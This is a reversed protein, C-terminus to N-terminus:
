GTLATLTVGRRAAAVAKEILAWPDQRRRRCTEVVSLIAAYARSGEDTRTGYSIRRAIVAHRLATEADNNTPPLNPNHVFATIADWDSLVERALARAKEGDADQNLLCARKLRALIPNVSRSASTDPARNEAVTHILARMERVLWEGFRSPEYQYGDILAIGKRILHAVCRQRRPYSRYAGYGDSVLWGLFADGILDRITEAHRSSIRYIATTTNLAVWLWRLKHGQQPWPTEDAHIVGAARLDDILSDVIPECALGAERICRDISGVSLRLDLWSSLFEAIKARSMRYRVSLAAIFTTLGPGVLGAESPRLQDKRGELVRVAGTLPRAATKAGCSCTVAFYCHKVCGVRVGSPLRELDLVLHASQGQHAFWLELARGCAECRTPFHDETREPTLAQSRWVGKAGPQKGPKRKPDSPTRVASASPASGSARKSGGGPNGAAAGGPGPSGGSFPGDSSPPRSSNTSNQGLRESLEVVMSQLRCVLEVLAAQDLKEVFPRDISKIDIPEKRAM